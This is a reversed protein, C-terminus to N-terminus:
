HHNQDLTTMRYGSEGDLEVLLHHISKLAERHSVSILTVGAKQLVTYLKLEDDQSVASTCEDLVAFTPCHSLVRVLAVRQREGGSLVDQWNKTSGLGGEREIMHSLGLSAAFELLREDTIGKESMDAAMSPYILQDRLTGPPLYVRQPLFMMDEERPKVIEGKQLPWLGTITRIFATKGSGNSGMILVHRGPTVHLNLNRILVVNSPTVVDVNTLRLEKVDHAAVVPSSIALRKSEESLRELVEQLEGVRHTSGCLAGVKKHLLLLKGIALSLPMYLQTTQLFLETLEPTSLYNQQDFVVAGCVIYGVCTSGYKVLMSDISGSVFNVKKILAEHRTISRLLRDAHERELEEGGYFAVEEAHQVLQSHNTKLNGEKEQSKAVLYAFNPLITSMLTGVFVYYSMLFSPAGYGGIKTLQRSFTIVDLVPKLISQFIDTLESCFQNADETIRHDPNDLTHQSAITYVNNGHLYEAQLARQLNDRFRQQLMTRAYQTGVQLVTGPVALFALDAVGHMFKRAEKQVLLRGNQGVTRAIILTLKTRSYLLICLAFVGFSEMSFPGPICMKILKVFRRFFVGNLTITDMDKTKRRSSARRQFIGEIIKLIVSACLTQLALIGLAKDWGLSAVKSLAAM